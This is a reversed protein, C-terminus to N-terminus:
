VLQRQSQAGALIAAWSVAPAAADEVVVTTEVAAAAPAVM